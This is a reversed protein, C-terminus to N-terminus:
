SRRDASRLAYLIVVAGLIAVVLSGIWTLNDNVDLADLVFGGLIGGLIGVAVAGIAGGPTRGPVVLSAVGGAIAGVILWVILVGM